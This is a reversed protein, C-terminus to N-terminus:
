EAEDLETVGVKFRKDIEIKEVERSSLGAQYSTCHVPRIEDTTLEIHQKAVSILGLHGNRLSEFETLMGIFKKRYATLKPDIMM